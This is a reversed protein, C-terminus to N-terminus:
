GSGRNANGPPGIFAFPNLDPYSNEPRTSLTFHSHPGSTCGSMGSRAVPQGARVQTGPEIGLAAAAGPAVHNHSSYIVAGNLEHRILVQENEGRWWEPRNVCARPVGAGDPGAAVVVGASPALLESGRRAELDIAMGDHPGQTVGGAPAPWVWDGAAPAAWEGQGGARARAHLVFPARGSALEIRAQAAAEDVDCRALTAGAADAISRAAECPEADIWGTLADAAALAAADAAGALKHAAVLHGSAALVPIGLCLAVAACGVLLPGSM